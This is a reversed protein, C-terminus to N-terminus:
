ALRGLACRAANHGPIGSVAGGRSAGSGCILLADDDTEVGWTGVEADGAAFPWSLDRHFIHGRPLGLDAELDLPSRAEVCPRGEGDTAVCDALPEALYADLGAITRALLAERARANGEEFLRAPAHLGFITLTHAGGARLDRGLISRDTLTHCYAEAPVTGPLRGGAAEDYARQLQDYGEDVHLTGAFAVAPDVGSRLRPLRTLLLNVKLQAGEPDEGPARGRLVDLVRPAVGSLVLRAALAREDGAQRYRVEAGAGDTGIATAECGCAIGAGATRAAQVLADTLAGMGGVPIRWEGTGNGIVHYLFCRNQLLSPDHAAAFTGILGDTLVIGRVLDDDLSAEVVEGLPREFVARWAEPADAFRARLDARDVLPDLLTPAVREAVQACLAQFALWQRHARDSGTLAAFSAGTAAEDRAVLLGTDRGSRRVPTYSAVSRSRTRFRLGLERVIRDPLLSVLYAYRSIRADVGPFAQASVAAGGPHDLRELVRVSHGARALYAAAVLGNHGGGVIAVDVRDTGM